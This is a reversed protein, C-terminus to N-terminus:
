NKMFSSIKDGRKLELIGNEGYEGNMTDNAIKFTIEGNEVSYIGSAKFTNAVTSIVDESISDQLSSSIKAKLQTEILTQAANVIFSVVSNDSDLGINKIMQGAADMIYSSVAETVMVGVSDCFAATNEIDLQIDFTGDENCNMTYPISLKSLDIYAQVSSDFKNIITDKLEPSLDMKGSWHGAIKQKIIQDKSKVYMAASDKYDDLEKFAEAAAAYDQNNFLTQAKKYDDSKCGTLLLAIALAALLMLKSKNKM